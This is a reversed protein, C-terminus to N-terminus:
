RRCDSIPLEFVISAFVCNSCKKLLKWAKDRPIDSILSGFLRSSISNKYELISITRINWVSSYNRRCLSGIWIFHGVKYYLWSFFKKKLFKVIPGNHRLYIQYRLYLSICIKSDNKPSPPKYYWPINELVKCKLLRM